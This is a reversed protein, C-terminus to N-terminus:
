RSFDVSEVWEIAFFIKKNNKPLGKYQHKYWELHKRQTNKLLKHRLPLINNKLIYLNKDGIKLKKRIKIETTSYCFIRRFPDFALLQQHHNPLIPDMPHIYDFTHLLLESLSVLIYSDRVM